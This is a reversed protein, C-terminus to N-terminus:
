RQPDAQRDKGNQKDKYNKQLQLERRRSRERDLRAKAGKRMLFYNGSNFRSDDFPDGREQVKQVMWDGEDIQLLTFYHSYLKARRM